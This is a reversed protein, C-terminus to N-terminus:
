EARAARERADCDLDLLRGVHDEVSAGHRVGGADRAVRDRDTESEVRRLDRERRRRVDGRLRWRGDIGAAHLAALNYAKEFQGPSYCRIGIAAICNSTSLPSVRTKASVFETALPRARVTGATGAHQGAFTAAIAAAIGLVAVAAFPLWRKRSTMM